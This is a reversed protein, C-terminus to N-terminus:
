LGKPRTGIVEATELAAIEEASLGLLDGLIEHNHQGLTPAACRLWHAVSAFRFPVTPLPHTGAVPHACPEFLRRAVMQTQRSSMRPDIPVAAPVGARILREVAAAADQDAAWRSLAADIRDHHAWRGALTELAVDDAWAPHGLVDKLLGWQRDTAISLALWQESGRCAYVGQPAAAPSRNGMRQLLRGYATFEIVQEAAVNLASEVMPVEVHQGVGTAERVRLAVLLAFAAHMGALPDCPGRPVLPAEDPWGNVWALGTMQEMTQAFGVRDRWPGTLGFAPMRVMIARPNRAHVTQWGLEFHELVRPSFNEVVADGWDILRKLLARGAPDSLNLTVGRKNANAALFVQSYEWWRERDTIWGAFRMGDPHQISEVHIVDAGLTALLHAASPGAWWSTMDVIRVGALPLTQVTAAAATPCARPQISGSHEGLRPAPRSAHPRRGDILYPGCPYTFTDAADRVFVQRDVLHEHRRVTDGNDIPAVPIRLAAAREVIEATTHRTTWARVIATWEDFRVQRGAASALEADDVLDPREILLLFDRFQQGSNTCFGVWGDATPEVSPTEINRMPAVIEPRGSVSWFLDLFATFAINTADLLSLDIHEGRGTRRARYISALAPAAAAAGGVWESLRGGVQVPLGGLRGRCALAGSEAQLTFETVPRGSWPGGRGFPTVSLWTLSPFRGCLDLADVVGIALDEVLLDAGAILDLFRADEPQCVVSRKGANLFRFLAGDRDGLDAGTASWRRLPDGAPPEVKIVEAGADAFLKGCYPGPIGSCLEIVRLDHLWPM